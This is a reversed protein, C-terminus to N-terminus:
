SGPLSVGFAARLAALRTTELQDRYFLNYTDFPILRGDEPHVFHICSKKVSRVDFAHADIFQVILIRFLNAYSLEPPVAVSPLCCLLDKLTGASSEPSHNTAFLKFLGERVAPDREYVISNRGGEILIEEATSCVRAEGCSRSASRSPM